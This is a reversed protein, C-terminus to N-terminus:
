RRHCANIERWAELRRKLAREIAAEDVACYERLWHAVMEVNPWYMDKQGKSSRPTDNMAADFGIAAREGPPLCGSESASGQFYWAIEDIHKQASRHSRRYFRYDHCGQDMREPMVGADVWDMFGHNIADRILGERWRDAFWAVFGEADAKKAEAFVMCYRTKVHIVLLVHKRQVTIAHVLWQEVSNSAEDDEIAKSPPNNDVPTIKKGKHVRSFFKSAAETCNFILM